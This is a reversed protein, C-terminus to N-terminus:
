TYLKKMRASSYYEVKSEPIESKLMACIEMGENDLNEVKSKDQYQFFHADEYRGLWDSIKEVLQDSLGLQELELYGGEISDRIGSGSFMGDVVLYKM